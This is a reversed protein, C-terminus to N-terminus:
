ENRSLFIQFGIQLSLDSSNIDTEFGGFESTISNRTFQLIADIGVNENLFYTAGPGIFFVFGSATSETGVDPNSKTRSYGAGATAFPKIKSDTINFYYRAFPIFSFVSVNGADNSAFGLGLSGGVALNDIVFYGVNPAISIGFTSGGGNDNGIDQLGINGTGGLMLNGQSTQALTIQTLMMLGCIFLVNLKKM